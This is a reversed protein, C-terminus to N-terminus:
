QASNEDAIVADKQGTAFRIQVRDGTQLVGADRVIKGNHQVISYGRLLIQLPSLSDLKAAAQVFQEQKQSVTKEFGNQLRHSLFDLTQAKQDVLFTANAMCQKNLLAQLMLKKQTYLRKLANACRLQNQQLFQLLETKDPTALEAAGSPTPARLDAAYDCITFDTEHGVASIVPIDSARITRALAESNFAWLDEISGGGRGIIIVDACKKANVDKVAQILEPEATDGQVTVPCMVVTAVPYRRSLINLIDQVAAGTPSTIVAIRRPLRPIPKKLAKDFLGEKELKAKLQEYAVNLDGEGLPKMAMIYLQYQGDREYLSVKGRCAVMMGNQPKFTLRSNYQRFMVARILGTEDKLSLYMHGTRYHDTFNSIEGTVVIDNLYVSSELLSRVYMNLQSVTLVRQKEAM